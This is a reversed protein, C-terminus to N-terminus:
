YSAAVVHKEEKSGYHDTPPDLPRSLDRSCNEHLRIRLRQRQNPQRSFRGSSFRESHATQSRLLGPAFAFANDETEILLGTM